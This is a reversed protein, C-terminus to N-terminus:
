AIMRQGESRRLDIKDLIFKEINVETTSGRLFYPLMNRLSCKVIQESPLVDSRITRIWSGFHKWVLQSSTMSLIQLVGQAILGLQIYVHYANMKRKVEERYEQTEKHLYQNGSRRKIKKMAKMWFHYAYAGLTNVAQKFSVEIKFRLSYIKLVDLPDLSLDTTMFVANGRNPNNVFVFRVTVGVPRWLLDLSRYYIEKPGDDYMAIVANIMKSKDKLLDALKVKEGYTAPRGRAGKINKPPFYAVASKGVRTILHDGRLLLGNVIKRNAYYADAVLYFPSKIDVDLIMLILKDSLTKGSRNSLVVGEHIRCVIPVSFFYSSATMLLSIAQCSHGMIYEAKSNSDSEQHLSKVGPMKKGEKAIKIGDGLIILRGNVIHAHNTKLMVLFWQQSLKELNIGSSHFFDLLRDYYNEELGLSRIISTVGVIDTRTSFGIMVVVFWMFTQQRSFCSRLQKVIDWWRIWLKLKIEKKEQM